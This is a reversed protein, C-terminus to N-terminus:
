YQIFQSSVFKSQHIDVDCHPTRHCCRGPHRINNRRYSTIKALDYKIKMAEKEAVAKETQERMAYLTKNSKIRVLEVKKVMNALEVEKFREALERQSLAKLQAIELKVEKAKKLEVTTEKQVQEINLQRDHVTVANDSQSFLLLLVCNLM